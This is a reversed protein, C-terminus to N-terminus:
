IGLGVVQGAQRLLVTLICLIQVHTGGIGLKRSYSDKKDHQYDIHSKPPQSRDGFLLSGTAHCTYTHLVSQEHPIHM